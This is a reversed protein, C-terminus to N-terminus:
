SERRLESVANMKRWSVFALVFLQSVVVFPTSIKVLIRTVRGGFPALAAIFLMMQAM